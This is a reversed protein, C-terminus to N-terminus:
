ERRFLWNYGRHQELSYWVKGKELQCATRIVLEEMVAVQGMLVTLVKEIV